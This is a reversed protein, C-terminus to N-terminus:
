KKKLLKQLPRLDQSFTNKQTFGELESNEQDFLEMLELFSRLLAPYSALLQQFKPYQEALNLGETAKDLIASLIEEGQKAPMRKALDQLLRDAARQLTPSEEIKKRIDDM